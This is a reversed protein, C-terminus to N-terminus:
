LAFHVLTRKMPFPESLTFEREGDAPSLVPSLPTRQLTSPGGREAGEWSGGRGRVGDREGARLSPSPARLAPSPTTGPRRARVQGPCERRGRLSSLSFGGAVEQHLWRSTRNM